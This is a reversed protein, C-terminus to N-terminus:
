ASLAPSFNRITSRTATKPIKEVRPAARRSRHHHERHLARPDDRRYNTAAAGRSYSLLLKGVSTCHLPARSGPEFRLGFPWSAEVRDIYVIANGTMMGFNCTEGVAASLAEIRRPTAGLVDVLARHRARLETPAPRATSAATSSASCCGRATLSACSATCPRNPCAWSRPWNPFPSRASSRPSRKLVAFVKLAPGGQSEPRPPVGGSRQHVTSPSASHRGPNLTFM